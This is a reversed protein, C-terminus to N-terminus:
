VRPMCGSSRMRLIQHKYMPRNRVQTPRDFTHNWGEASAVDELLRRKYKSYCVPHLNVSEMIEDETWTGGFQTSHEAIAQLVTEADRPPRGIHKGEAQAKRLGASIASNRPISGDKGYHIMSHCRACVCVMNSPIDNGGMSIPVVHHYQLEETAGCNICVTGIQQKTAVPLWPRKGM